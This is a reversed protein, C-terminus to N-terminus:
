PLEGVVRSERDDIAAIVAQSIEPWDLWRHGGATPIAGLVVTVRLADPGLAESQPKLRRLDRLAASGVVDVVLCQGRALRALLRRKAEAGTAHMWLVALDVGDLGNAAEIARMFDDANRWDASVPVVRDRAALSSRAAGRAVVVVRGARAAVQEVAEGLMGTAGVMLVNDFEAPM